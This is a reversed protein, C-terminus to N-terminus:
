QKTETNHHDWTEDITIFRRLFKTPNCTCLSGFLRNFRYQKQDTTLLRPVRRACLKTMYVHEHLIYRVRETLVGGTEDIENM